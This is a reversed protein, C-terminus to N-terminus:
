RTKFMFLNIVTSTTTGADVSRVSCGCRRRSGAVSYGRPMRPTAAVRGPCPIDAHCERRRSRDWPIDLEVRHGCVSVFRECPERLVTFTAAGPPMHRALTEHRNIRLGHCEPHTRNAFRLAGLMSTSGSKAIRMYNLSGGMFEGPAGARGVFKEDATAAVAACAVLLKM